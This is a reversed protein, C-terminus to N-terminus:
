SGPKSPDPKAGTEPGVAPKKKWPMDPMKVPLPKPKAMQLEPDPADTATEGPPAM